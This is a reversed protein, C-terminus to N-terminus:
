YKPVISKRSSVNWIQSQIREELEDLLLKAIQKAIAYPKLKKEKSQEVKGDLEM